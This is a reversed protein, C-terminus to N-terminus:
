SRIDPIRYRATKQTQNGTDRDVKRLNRTQKEMGERLTEVRSASQWDVESAVLPCCFGTSDPSVWRPLAERPGQAGGVWTAGEEQAAEWAAAAPPEAAERESM